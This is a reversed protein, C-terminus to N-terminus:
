ATERDLLYFIKDSLLRIAASTEMRMSGPSINVLEFKGEIPEPSGGICGTLIHLLRTEEANFTFTTSVERKFEM